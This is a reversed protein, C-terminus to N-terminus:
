DPYKKNVPSPTTLKRKWSWYGTWYLLKRLDDPPIWFNLAWFTLVASLV